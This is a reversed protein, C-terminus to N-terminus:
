GAWGGSSGRHNSTGARIDIGYRNGVRNFGKYPDKIVVEENVMQEAIVAAYRFQDAGHANEDPLPTSASETTQNIRRRYRKLREVLLGAKTKDFYCRAFMQQAAKIGSEVGIEPVEEVDRGLKTLVEKPTKKSLPNHAKSDHPLFDKGWRYERKEIEAVVESYTRENFEEYDIVRMESAQRQYFGIAMVGWGLDWVTHVKLLPDYPVNCAIRGEETAKSIQNAYIAGEVTARCKGDWINDYDDRTRIGLEVQRLLEQREKELVEPFWKNNRWNTKVVVADPPPNEIFRVYTEDTTLEPNM